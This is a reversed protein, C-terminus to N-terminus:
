RAMAALIIARAPTVVHLFLMTTMEAVPAGHDNIYAWPRWQCRDILRICPRGDNSTPM